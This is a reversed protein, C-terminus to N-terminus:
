DSGQLGASRWKGSADPICRLNQLYTHPERSILRVNGFAGFDKDKRILPRIQAEKLAPRHFPNTRHSGQGSCPSLLVSGAVAARAVSPAVPGLCHMRFRTWLHRLLLGSFRGRGPTGGREDRHVDPRASVSALSGCPQTMQGGGGNRQGGATHALSPVWSASPRRSPGITSRTPGNPGRHCAATQASASRLVQLRGCRAADPAREGISRCRM